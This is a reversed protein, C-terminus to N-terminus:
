NRKLIYDAFYNNSDTIKGDIVFDTSAIIKALTQEDYKRSIETHIREGVVFAFTKELSKIHVAQETKSVLYSYAVGEQEDYEPCHEFNDLNFDAELERNIRTLLNLNFRATIGNADNYAPLVIDRSKKLDVGLVLIDDHHFNAGMQYLFDTAMGDELNGINSGLFLVVKKHPSGKLAALADFYLSQRPRTELEPIEENLTNELHDLINKSIDVPRYVFDYGQNVLKKLLKKTKHGDGAGLEVIEFFSNKDVNLAAILDATKRNFIEDEARTVYYEPMAMIERFLEDGVADYFYQSPLYKQPASLGAEVDQKFQELM